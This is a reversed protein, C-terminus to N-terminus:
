WAISLAIDALLDPLVSSCLAFAVEPLIYPFCMLCSIAFFAVIQVRTLSYIILLHHPTIKVQQLDVDTLRLFTTFTVQHQQFTPILSTLDLGSLFMELEGFKVLGSCVFFLDCSSCHMKIPIVLDVLKSRRGRPRWQRRLSYCFQSYTWKPSQYLCALIHFDIFVIDDIVDKHVDDIHVDYTCMM